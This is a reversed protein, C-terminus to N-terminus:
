MADFTKNLAGALENIGPWHSLQSLVKEEQHSFLFQLWKQYETRQWASRSVVWATLQMTQNQFLRHHQNQPGKLLDEKLPLIIPNRLSLRLLDPYWSKTQWTPTVIILSPVKEEELNKLVKHIFAFPPFAYLSKSVVETSSCRHWSQQSGAELLLLKSASKGVKFCVSRNRTEEGINPMNRQFNSPMTENTRSEKDKGNEAFLELSDYQKGPYTCSANEM